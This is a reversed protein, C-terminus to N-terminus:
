LAGRPDSHRRRHTPTAIQTLAVRVDAELTSPTIRRSFRPYGPYREAFHGSLAASAVADIQDQVKTRDGTVGALWGGLPKTEGRSTVTIATAMNARLWTVMAKLSHRAKEEYVPRHMATSERAKATAGAYRRLADTFEPAPNALRVCVEGTKEEDTFRPEDYPQIFYVYFDRPPQATSRENPAGMFLYGRRDANTTAWPLDYQWIRYGAM